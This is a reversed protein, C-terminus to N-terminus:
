RVKERRSLYASLFTDHPTRTNITVYDINNEFCAQKYQNIFAELEASYDDRLDRPSVRVREGTEMDRFTAVKEFPFNLEHDDLVHLVIVDHRKQRFHALGKIVDEPEDMLDSIIVILGRRKILEAMGHLALATNTGKQPMTAALADLMARLHTLSSRPPFYSEIREGFLVMGAMDAQKIVVYALGAALHCAYQYKTIGGSGYRMSASCDVLIYTKLNTTEEYRKIYYRESRGYVRWDLHRLDDGKVYQRHDAFDTSLGKFPSRHAGTMSGEVRSRSTVQLHQLRRLTDPDLFRTSDSQAIRM